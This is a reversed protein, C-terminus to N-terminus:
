TVGFDMRLLSLPYVSIVGGTSGRTAVGFELGDQMPGHQEFPIPVELWLAEPNRRFALVAPGANAASSELDSLIGVEEIEPNDELFQNLVSKSDQGVGLKLLQLRRREARPMQIVNPREIDKTVDLMTDVLSNLDALVELATKATAGTTTWKTAGAAGAPADLVIMNPYNALGQLNLEDKGNIGVDNLLQDFARKASQSRLAPLDKGTVQSQEIDGLTYGYAVGFEEVTGTTKTGSVDARPLDRWSASTFFKAFGKPEFMEYAWSKLGRPVTARIPLIEGNAMRLERLKFEYARTIVFELQNQFHISNADSRFHANPLAKVADLRIARRPDNADMKITKNKKDTM